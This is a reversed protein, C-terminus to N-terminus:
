KAHKRIGNANIPFGTFTINFCAEEQFFNYDPKIPLRSLGDAYGHDCTKRYQINFQYALPTIAWHQLRYWKITPLHKQPSFTNVLPKHDAIITFTRDYLYQQFRKVGCVIALGEKKIQSHRTQHTNLMKTAIAISRETGGPCLHSIM